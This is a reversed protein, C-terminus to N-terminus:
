WVLQLENVHMVNSMLYPVKFGPKLRFEPLEALMDTIAVKLERRALHAGLCRHIGHGFSLHAPRRDLIM